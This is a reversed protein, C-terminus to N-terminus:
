LLLFISQYRTQITIQANTANTGLAIYTYPSHTYVAFGIFNTHLFNFIYTRVYEFIKCLHFDINHAM